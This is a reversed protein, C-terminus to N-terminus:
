WIRRPEDIRRAASTVSRAESDKGRAGVKISLDHKVQGLDHGAAAHFRGPPQRRSSLHPIDLAAVEEDRNRRAAVAIEQRIHQVIPVVLAGGHDQAVAAPRHVAPRCPTRM